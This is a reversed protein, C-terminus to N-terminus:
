EHESEQDQDPLKDLLQRAQQLDVSDIDNHKILHSMLAQADGQFLRNVLGSVMDSEVQSRSVNPTYLRERGHSVSSVLGRKELRTLLTAVTTYALERERVVREVVEATTAKGRRWLARMVALQIQSLEIKAIKEIM